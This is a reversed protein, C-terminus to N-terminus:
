SIDWSRQILWYVPTLLYSVEWISQSLGILNYLILLHFFAVIYHLAVALGVQVKNPQLVFSSFSHERGKVVM